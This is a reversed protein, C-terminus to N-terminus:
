RVVALCLGCKHQTKCYLGPEDLIDARLWKLIFNIMMFCMDGCLQCRSIEAVPGGVRSTWRGLTVANLLLWDLIDNCKKRSRAIFHVSRLKAYEGRRLHQEETELLELSKSVSRQAPGFSLMGTSKSVSRQVFSRGKRSTWIVEYKGDIEFTVGCSQPTCCLSCLPRDRGAIEMPM